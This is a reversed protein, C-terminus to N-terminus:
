FSGSYWGGSQITLLSRIQMPSVFTRKEGLKFSAAKGERILKKIFGPSVGLLEAGRQISVADDPIKVQVEKEM